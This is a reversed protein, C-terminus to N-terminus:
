LFPEQLKLLLSLSFGQKNYHGSHCFFYPTPILGCLTIWPSFVGLLFVVRFSLKLIERPFCENKMEQALHSGLLVKYIIPVWNYKYFSHIFSFFHLFLLSKWIRAELGTLFVITNWNLGKKIGQRSILVNGQFLCKQKIVLKM